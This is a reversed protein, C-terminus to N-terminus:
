SLVVANYVAHLLVAPALRGTRKFIVANLAGLAAVPLWSLAPHYVAFFAASGLIARWGGWERELARFLLGRFLFEEAPPAILVAMVFYAQRLHPVSAMQADAQDLERALPGLQHLLALYGDAALGLALGAVAAALLGALLPMAGAGALRGQPSPWRLLAAMDVGRSALFRWMGVTVAAASAGYAVAQAFAATGPGAFVLAVGAVVAGGEVLLSIAIMAHMLTPPTPLVASWPDHLYPLRARFNQWMAAATMISYVIGAVAVTWQLTVVGTGFTLTGLQVAWRRGSSAREVEGSSSTISALTVAKEAMSRAFLVWGAGLLAIQWIAAPYRWAAYALVLAVLSSSLVTWLWAKAKLLSELGRPWTLAIWLASGESSLSRPGLVAIFYTGFLVAGGGLYNWSGAAESLLGRMNFLQLGAVSLPVLIAQVLAGRDRVFWLMEKRFLPYRGFRSRARGGRSATPPAGAPAALGQRASWVSFAVSGAILTASLAACSLVGTTFAFAGDDRQGLLLGLWPWPLVALPRLLPALLTGAQETTVWGMLLLTFAMYGLWGILGTLAGRSRAGARLLVGIEFAKALCALALTLPVGVLAAALIGRGAGYVAGYLVAPLLPASWYLPNAAIPALMEALFMPWTRIPHSLLWEWMPYRRRQVDLEAGEGLMVLMLMWLLLALGGFMAPFGTLVTPSALGQVVDDDTVFANLRHERIAGRLRDAISAASGGYREALREGERSYTPQLAADLKEWPAPQDRAQRVQYHVEGVFYGSVVLQGRQEAAVRQGADVARLVLSAAAVNVLLMWGTALVAAFGAWKAGRGGSQKLFLQRARLRRGSARRRATQLLLRVVRWSGPANM